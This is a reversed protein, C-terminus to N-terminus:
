GHAQPAQSQGPRLCDVPLIMRVLAGGSASEGLMLRGELSGVFREVSCLGVAPTAAAYVRLGRQVLQPPLGPGNDTVEVEVHTNERRCALHVQADGQGTVADAANHLLEYLSRCLGREPLRCYLGPKVQVRFVLDDDTQYQLLNVLSAALDELNVSIPPEDPSAAADVSESLFSALREVQSNILQLRERKEPDETELLLNGCVAQITALPNRIDHALRLTKEMVAAAQQWDALDSRQSLLARVETRISELLAYDHALASKNLEPVNMNSGGAQAIEPL